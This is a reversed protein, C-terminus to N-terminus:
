FTATAIFSISNEYTGAQQSTNAVTRYCIYISDTGSPTDTRSLLTQANSSGVGFAKYNGITTIGISVNAATGTTTGVELSYGFGSNDFNTWASPTTASCGGGCNTDPITTNIGIIKLPNNEYAQIVYGNQSNTICSLNQALNNYTNLSLIGFDIATATTQTANSGIPSGCLTNGVNTTNSTGITFTITPDVIATVRVSETAAIKGFDTNLINSSSDLQRIGYFHTDANAIDTTAKGIIHNIGPSPNILKGGSLRGITMSIGVNIVTNSQCTIIHYIGDYSNGDNINITTGVGSATGGNPCSIDADQLNGLDFGGQDPINDSPLEDSRETAKILFKLYGGTVTSKPIFSVTHIASRTAIVFAGVSPSVNSNLYITSSDGINVVAFTSGIGSIAITDGVSLNATSRSPNDTGSIIISSGSSETIRGFFSLQASSLQDKLNTISASKIQNKNAFLTLYAPLILLLLIAFKLSAKKM